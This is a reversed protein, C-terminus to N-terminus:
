EDDLKLTELDEETIKEMEEKLQETDRNEENDKTKEDDSSQIIDEPKYFYDSFQFLRDGKMIKSLPYIEITNVYPNAKIKKIFNTESAEDPHVCITFISEANQESALFAIDPNETCLFQGFSSLFKENFKPILTKKLFIRIANMREINLYDPNLSVYYGTIIKQDNLRSIRHYITSIKKKMAEAIQKVPQRSDKDLYSLIEIDIKDLKKKVDKNM